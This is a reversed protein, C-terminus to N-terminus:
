AMLPSIIAALTASLYVDPTPLLLPAACAVAVIVILFVPLIRLARRAYFRAISFRGAQLEATIHNIILFGSIVFFVDVGVFGGSLGPIGTHFAVVALISIARLGDVFPLYGFRYAPAATVEGDARPLTSLM